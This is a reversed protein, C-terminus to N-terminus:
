RRTADKAKNESPLRGIKVLTPSIEHLTRAFNISAKKNIQLDNTEACDFIHIAKRFRGIVEQQYLSSQLCSLPVSHYVLGMERQKNERKTGSLADLM